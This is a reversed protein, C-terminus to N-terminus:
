GRKGIGVGWRVEGKGGGGRGREGRGTGEWRREKGGDGIGMIGGMVGGGM